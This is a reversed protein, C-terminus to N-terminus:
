SIFKIFDVESMVGSAASVIPVQNFNSIFKCLSHYSVPSVLPLDKSKKPLSLFGMKGGMMEETAQKNARMKELCIKVHCTDLLVNQVWDLFKGKGDKTIYECIKGIGDDKGERTEAKSSRESNEKMLKDFDSREIISQKYLQKVVSERSKSIGDDKLLRIIEGVVDAATNNQM